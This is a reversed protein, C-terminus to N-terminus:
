RSKFQLMELYIVGTIDDLSEGLQDIGNGVHSVPIMGLRTDRAQQRVTERLNQKNQEQVDGM